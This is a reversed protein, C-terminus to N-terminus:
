ELELSRIKEVSSKVMEHLVNLKNEKIKLNVQMKELEKANDKMSVM